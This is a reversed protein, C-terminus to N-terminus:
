RSKRLFFQKPSNPGLFATKQVKDIFKPKARVAKVSKKSKKEQQSWKEILYENNEQNYPLDMFTDSTKKM